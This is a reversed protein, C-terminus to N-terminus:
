DAPIIDLIVWREAGSSTVGSDAHAYISNLQEADHANPTQFSTNNLTGNDDNMCSRGFLLVIRNHDLGLTHGVEQCLVHDRAVDNGYTGTFYFDNVKVEADSIHGTLINIRVTALGFWGNAGYNGSSIKLKAGQTVKTFDVVDFTGAKYQTVADWEGIVKTVLSSWTSSVSTSFSLTFPNSSRPWHYNVWAHAAHAPAAQLTLAGLLALAPLIRAAKVM